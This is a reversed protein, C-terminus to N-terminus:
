DVQDNPLPREDRFGKLVKAMGSAFTNHHNSSLYFYLKEFFDGSGAVEAEVYRGAIVDEIMEEAIARPDVGRSNAATQLKDLVKKPLTIMMSRDIKNENSESM